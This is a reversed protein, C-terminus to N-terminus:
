LKSSPINKQHKFMAAFFVLYSLRQNISEGREAASRNIDIQFPHVSILNQPYLFKGGFTITIKSIIGHKNNTLGFYKRPWKM